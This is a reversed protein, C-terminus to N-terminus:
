ARKVAVSTNFGGISFSNSLAVDIALPESARGAFRLTEDVPSQLRPNPHVFRGNIQLVTAVLEVVGAASVTHGTIAKTANLVARTGVADRIATCEVRDGTPTGTGHTNVYDVDGPSIGAAAMAGRMAAAEGEANAETGANADLVISAGALEALPTVGRAAASEASELLVAAASQGYTFGGSSTDFPNSAAEPDSDEPPLALAGINTFAVLELESFDTMAGICLCARASGSRILTWAQFLAVNGSAMGGGATLGIGGLSALESVAAVLTTDLFTAAYRPNVYEPRELFREYAAAIYAQHLNSGAVVIACDRDKWGASGLAELASACSAYMAPPRGRLLRRERDPAADVNGNYLAAPLVRGTRPLRTWGFTGRGRQLADSFGAVNAAPAGHFGMGTVVVTM